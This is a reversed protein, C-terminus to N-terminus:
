ESLCRSTRERRRDVRGCGGQRRRQKLPPLLQLGRFCPLLSGPLACISLRVSLHFSLLTDQLSSSNPPPPHGDVGWGGQVTVGARGWAGLCPSTSDSDGGGTESSGSLSGPWGREALARPLDALPLRHCKPKNAPPSGVPLRLFGPFSLRSSSVQATRLRTGAVCNTPPEVPCLKEWFLKKKPKAM